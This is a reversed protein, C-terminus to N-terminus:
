AVVKMKEPKKKKTQQEPETNVGEFSQDSGDAEIGDQDDQDQKDNFGDQVHEPAEDSVITRKITTTKDFLGLQASKGMWAEKAETALEELLTNLDGIRNYETNELVIKPTSCGCSSGDIGKYTFSLTVSEGDSGINQRKYGKAVVDEHVDPDFRMLNMVHGKLREQLKSIAPHDAPVSKTFHDGRDNISISMSGSAFSVSVVEAAELDIKYIKQDEMDAFTVVVILHNSIRVQVFDLFGVGPPM